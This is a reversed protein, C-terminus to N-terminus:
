SRRGDASRSWSEELLRTKEAARRELEDEEVLRRKVEEALQSSLDAIFRRLGPPSCREEQRSSSPGAYGSSAAPEGRAQSPSAAEPRRQSACGQAWVAAPASARRVETQAVKAEPWEGEDLFNALDGGDASPSPPVAFAEPSAATEGGSREGSSASADAKLAKTALMEPSCDEGATTVHPAETPSALALQSLAALADQLQPWGSPSEGKWPWVVNTALQRWSPVGPCGIALLESLASLATLVQPLGDGAFAKQLQAVQRM